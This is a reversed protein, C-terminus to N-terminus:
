GKFSDPRISKGTTSLFPKEPTLIGFSILTKFADEVSMDTKIVENTRVILFFGTTPNPTTPVFVKCFEEGSSDTVFGTLFGISRMGAKPFEVLVVSLFSEKKPLAMTTMVQKTAGYVTRLVPIKLLLWEGMLILKRGLYRQALAGVMYILILLFIISLVSAAVSVYTPPNTQIDPNRVIFAALKLLWPKLFGAMWGFVWRMVLLTVGFPMLVLIGTLFHNRIDTKVGKWGTAKHIHTKM